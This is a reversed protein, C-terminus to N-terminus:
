MPTASPRITPTRPRASSRTFRPRSPGFPRYPQCAFWASRSVQGSTRRSPSSTSVSQSAAMVATTARERSSRAADPGPRDAEVRGALEEDLLVARERDDRLGPDARAVRVAVRAEARRGRRLRQLLREGAVTLRGRVRVDVAAVGEEEDSVVDGLGLGHEPHAHEIPEARGIARPEHDDIRARRRGRPLRVDVDGEPVPRVEREQVREEVLQDLVAPDVPRPELLV